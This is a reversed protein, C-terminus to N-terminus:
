KKFLKKAFDRFARRWTLWEHATGESVYTVCNIGQKELAKCSDTFGFSGEETGWSIHLLRVQKNFAAPDAFAGGYVTKVNEDNVRFLGSLLGMWAFKDLNKNELVTMTTQMGGRSLGAMGRNERNPITRFTKDIFPVLDNVYVDAVTKGEVNRITPTFHMDGSMVVVIMEEAEKNAIMNDLIFDVHGQDVWGNENEGSGHLLYLVPYRKKGTEYSAPVYVNIHRWTGNVQSYYKLSRIQGHPVDKNFRYYDGEPGEPVEIGGANLGYGFFSLSNPDTVRAGDVNVFYYHFGVPLPDTEITWVGDIDKTGKFENPVSVSVSHALPLHFKFYAKRTIPDVRPYEQRLANTESPYTGREYDTMAKPLQNGQQQAFIGTAVFLLALTTFITKRM